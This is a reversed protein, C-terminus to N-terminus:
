SCPPDRLSHSPGEGSACCLLHHRITVWDYLHNGDILSVDPNYITFDHTMSDAKVFEIVGSLGFRAANMELADHAIIKGMYKPDGRTWYMFEQNDVSIVKKAGALGAIIASGGWLTGIELFCGINQCKRSLLEIEAKTMAIRGIFRRLDFEKTM